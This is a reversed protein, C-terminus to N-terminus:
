LRAIAYRAPAPMAAHCEPRPLFAVDVEVQIGPVGGANEESAPCRMRTGADAVRKMRRRCIVQEM